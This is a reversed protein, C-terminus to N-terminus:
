ITRNGEVRSPNGLIDVRLKRGLDGSPTDARATHSRASQVSSTRRLLSSLRFAALSSESMSKSETNTLLSFIPLTAFFSPESNGFM